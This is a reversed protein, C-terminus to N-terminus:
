SRTYSIFNGQPILGFVGGGFVLTVTDNIGNTVSFITQNNTPLNNFETNAGYIAPVQTWQTLLGNAGVQYLWIDFNNIGTAALTFTNNPLAQTISFQQSALTGQKFYLFYGTNNSGYGLGDNQFLLNFTSSNNPDVEYIYTKGVSTPDVVEFKMVTNDITTTFAYPATQGNPCSVGYESYNIGNIINTNGPNGVTQSSVLIANIISNWQDLWNTNSPDNWNITLGNLNNGFSDYVNDNVSISNIKLYGNAALNRSPQYNLLQALYNINKRSQATSLFNERANLDFRYSMAQGMFAILDILAVYESSQIYDNFNEPNYTQLYNIMSQRLTSFDYSALDPNVLAQYTNQWNQVGFNTTQQLPNAM